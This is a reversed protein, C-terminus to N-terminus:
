ICMRASQTVEGEERREGGWKGEGKGRGRQRGRGKGRGRGRWGERDGEVRLVVFHDEMMVLEGGEM